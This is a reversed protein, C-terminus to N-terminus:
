ENGDDFLSQFYALAEDEADTDAAAQAEAEAEVHVLYSNRDAEAMAADDIEYGVLTRQPGVRTADVPESHSILTAVFDTAERIFSPDDCVVGVELHRRSANTWNASGWWVSQPTFDASVFYDPAEDPGYKSWHLEGLVLLKAHLLPKNQRHGPWGFVRIPELDYEMVERPTYPGLTMPKGGESRVLGSLQPLAINPFGVEPSDILRQPLASGKDVVVCVGSMMLLRDIVERSTM